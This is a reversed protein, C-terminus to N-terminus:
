QKFVRHTFPVCRPLLFMCLVSMIDRGEGVQHEFAADGKALLDKKQALIKRSTSDMADVIALCDHPYKFPLKEFFKRWTAPSAIRLALPLFSVIAFLPSFTPRRTAADNDRRYLGPWVTLSASM